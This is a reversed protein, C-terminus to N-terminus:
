QRKEQVPFVTVTVAYQITARTPHLSPSIQPLRFHLSWDVEQNNGECNQCGCARCLILLLM